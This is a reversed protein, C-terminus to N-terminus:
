DQWLAEMWAVHVFSCRCSYSTELPKHKFESLTQSISPATIHPSVGLCRTLSLKNRHYRHPPARFSHCARRALHFHFHLHLHLPPPPLNILNASAVPLALPPWLKLQLQLQLLCVSLRCLCVSSASLSGKGGDHPPHFLHHSSPHISRKM